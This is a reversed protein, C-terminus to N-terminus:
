LDDLQMAVERVVQARGEHEDWMTEPEPITGAEYLGEYRPHHLGPRHPAKHHVLLCFPQEPDRSDLFDLSQRSGVDTAYGPITEEGDPGIMAPDSYAGQDPFVRFDDIGRPLARESRGPHCKGDPGPQYGAENFGGPF